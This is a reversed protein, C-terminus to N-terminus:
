PFNSAFAEDKLAPIGHAQLEIAREQARQEHVDLTHTASEGADQQTHVVTYGELFWMNVYVDNYPDHREHEPGYDEPPLAEFSLVGAPTDVHVRDSTVEADPESLDVEFEDHGALEDLRQSLAASSEKEGM